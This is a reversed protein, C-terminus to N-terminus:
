LKCPYPAETNPNGTKTISKLNELAIQRVGKKQYDFYVLTEKKMEYPFGERKIVTKDTDSYYTFIVTRNNRGEERAIDIYVNYM